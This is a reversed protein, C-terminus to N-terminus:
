DQSSSVEHVEKTQMKKKLKENRRKECHLKTDRKKKKKKKEKEKTSVYTILLKGDSKWWNIDYGFVYLM